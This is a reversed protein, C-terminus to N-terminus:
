DKFAIITKAIKDHFGQKRKDFIVWFFGQLFPITSLICSIFRTTSQKLTPSTGHDADYIRSKIVLMGPTAQLRYWFLIYYIGSIVNVIILQTLTEWERGPPIFGEKIMCIPLTLLSQGNLEKTCIATAREDNYSFESSNFIMLPAALSAIITTDIAWSLFRFFFGVYRSNYPLTNQM